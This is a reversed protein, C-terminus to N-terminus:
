AHGRTVTENAPATAAPAAAVTPRAVHLTAHARVFQEALSPKALPAQNFQLAAHPVTAPTTGHNAGPARLAGHEGHGAKDTSAARGTGGFEIAVDRRTQHGQADRAIISITLDRQNAPVKGSLTGHVPDYHMWGPLPRGDALRLEVHADAGLPLGESSGIMVPLSVVFAQDPRVNLHVALAPLDLSLPTNGPAPTAENPGVSTDSLSGHHRSPDTRGNNAYGHAGIEDAVFTATHVAPLSGVEPQPAFADLVILPNSISDTLNRPFSIVTDPAPANFASPTAPGASSPGAASVGNGKPPLTTPTAPAPQGSQAPPASSVVPPAAAINVTRTSAESTKHGDNVSISITRSTASTESASDAYTVSALAAQWQALTTGPGAANLTLVGTAADYTATISGTAASPHFALVDRDPHFGGTISITASALTAGSDADTVSIQPAITVPQANPGSAFTPTGDNGISVVPTQDTATITITKTGAASDKTGDNVSFSITRQTADPVVATDTYTVSRLAAQWQALTATAGSSSLTLVGTTANYGTVTINGMTANDNTFSLVDQGAHFGGTVSVTASALTTNDLDSVTVGNDVVVPTSAANDGSVFATSGNSTSLVPTQDVDAVTVQKSGAASDKTGDNVTFSITRTTNDPTLATDTYTVSRLAAQWQALTASAGTSSLTMVGTSADYTATINGMTAGDNTFSLVDEGAHFGTTVSVTASALTTNDLDSVTVGGDVVVPTSTTNDGATFATSGNSTSLVPTQDVDAVTVQKTGAASDKTGDNVTFSITRTAADPTVATDTYTVSSLAAQWQALTATASTSTLTMVGTSPDYSAVINGMTAGDNTFSLVDEGAHFNGSISVTASALTGNDLDSIAIGNDVVVPTSATNDGATFATSGTSTTLIPTQDVDTVTVTKSAVTSSQIGDNIQFSVTRSTPDPTIATDTYSVARLAAQWQALTATQGISTLTMVGTAADYTAVINGMTAGDNIYSLVDEGAHFGTGISVTASALTGSEPDTITLGGDVLVPTSITNDGATFAPTSGSLTVNPSSSLVDVNSSMSASNKVGDNVTFSVTRNGLPSTPSNSFTVSAIANAWQVNSATAGSSVLTLVGTAANYSATINGFQSSSTNLFSLTDGPQYGSTIAVTGSAQAPNDLDSVTVSSFVTQAGTGAVYDVTGSSVSTVPTQDTDTVTVNKTGAVSTKSGDNVSFSITRTSNGPTVATDTYTVTRLAAQWQALTASAGVSSLTMVGTAANYSATINGMTAGDNTFSLIDEGSHFNGTISVTASALTGNDLDSVTVGNDVTVPTSATNDGAVFATSGGSTSLVPTQDTDAVTVNRSVLASDQTGDNVTFSITRTTNDPTVATDTYTVSRLAAQWQALTASGGASSLTMVGTVANYSATINGMTTGNNVFGLVDEGAHFGAGISVTASTLTTNDRDSVVIGSDVAVPAAPANDGATFSASGGSTTVVPTQDVDTVTVLKTAAASDKTGDNVSFSITRTAPVPTVATNTYTVADLANQWQAVTATGSASNLVLVGTLSNYTGSIDGFLTPSSNSFGLVDEGSHLNGTISVVASALTTNDLDSVTIGSDIAVPTSTVNDGATFATSGGTTTLIPTQDTDTVTVTRTSTASSHSGDNVTFSITRTANNPTVATDTYTISRLASQWQALTATGSASSLTMVGTTANYTATIDGMTTGNNTFSLVDQDNHYNGTISVTASQLTTSGADTVTLGSDITVPTSPANDAAVFAASGGDTTVVPVAIVTVTNTVAVSSKTGDSVSLSITRGGPSGSAADSFRVANLANDWQALTATAGTSSLTMVGTATNYSASINGMTAGDNIFSLSDGVVFGSGISVNASAMTTNDRDAISVGSFVQTAATGAIYSVGSSSTGLTPTQDTDTVTVTRTSTASTHAGDNVNFSITRTASNPTVATDTYTISRLAAQWQALSATGSASTLTLVGTGANYAGSIDGMTAPNNVYLLMDEGSHFNGTISVTASALTPSAADSVTLGADVAVPTSTTNDGAVFAASGSDLTINPGSTVNVTNSIAASNKSGDNVTFAVTRVGPPANSADAFRIADLANDWQALTATAGSSSLTLVGTGASYVASINGMTAGDNTFSLVDGSQFGNNISVTATAMTTNDRDSITVGSFVPTSASGALYTTGTSSSSLTPTQDTDAVTVNRTATIGASVGDNVTFSVTRTATIPTIATDTYTVAQLANQWQAITASGGSSTMSLVGTGANYTATINGYLTANSNTFSLVDQGAQFGTGISVTASQATSSQPDSLTIGNDVAIPTSTVNDGAVFPASGSSTTATTGLVTYTFNNLTPSMFGDDGVDVIKLSTLNQFDANSALSKTGSFLGGSVLVVEKSTDGNPILYITGDSFADIDFSQLAFHQGSALAINLSSMQTGNFNVMLVGDTPSSSLPPAGFPDTTQTYVDSEVAQDTTYTIGDLTFSTGTTDFAPSVHNDYTEVTVGLLANYQAQAAASEIVPTHVDGVTYELTWNGGLAALGTPDTSAAVNLHTLAAINQVLAKGDANQAVDCGYILFDGGPKMEAGIQALEASYTSLDGANLWSSGAQIEGDAGHSILHISEIGKHTQLYQAIQAFGDTNANLVVYQTGAPLGAILAQYNAVSPDIFVVQHAAGDGGHSAAGSETAKTNDKNTSDKSADSKAAHDPKVDHEAVPKPTASLSSTASAHSDAEAGHPHPAVAAVSADYVVRPELAMILPAPAVPARAGTSDGTDGLRKLLQKVIKM